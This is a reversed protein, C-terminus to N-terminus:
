PGGAKRGGGKLWSLQAAAKPLEVENEKDIIHPCRSSNHNFFHHVHRARYRAQLHKIDDQREGQVQWFSLLYCQEGMGRLLSSSGEGESRKLDQIRPKGEDAPDKSSFSLFAPEQSCMSCPPTVSLKEMDKLLQRWQWRLFSCRYSPEM